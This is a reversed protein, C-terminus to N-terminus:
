FRTVFKQKSLDKNLFVIGMRFLDISVTVQGNDCIENWAKEMGESWHIDDFVFVTDNHAVKLLTEFYSVTAKYTHNGDIFAFDLKGVQPLLDPLVVDFRGINQVINNAEMKRFNSTAQESKTTCGEITYIKADPKALAMYLTSIGVSSGLEVITQPKFHQVLHFLVKGFKESVSGKEVIAAVSEFRFAYKKDKAGSGFDTIEIVQNKKLLTNKLQAIRQFATEPNNNKLVQDVLTYVFPSHISHRTGSQNLYRLYALITFISPM